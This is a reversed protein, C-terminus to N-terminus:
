NRHWDKKALSISAKEDPYSDFTKEVGAKNREVSYKRSKLPEKPKKGM